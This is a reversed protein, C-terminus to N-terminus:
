SGDQMVDRLGCCVIGEAQRHMKYDSHNNVDELLGVFVFTCRTQTRLGGYSVWLCMCRSHFVFFTFRLLKNDSCLYTRTLQKQTGFVQHLYLLSETTTTALIFTYVKNLWTLLNFFIFFATQEEVDGFIVCKAEWKWVVAINSMFQLQNWSANAKYFNMAINRQMYDSKSHGDDLWLTNPWFGTNCLAAYFRIVPVASPLCRYVVVSRLSHHCSVDLSESQWILLTTLFFFDM